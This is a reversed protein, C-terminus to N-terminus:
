LLLDQLPSLREAQTWEDEARGAGALGLFVVVVTQKSVSASSFHNNVISGGQSVLSCSCLINKLHM